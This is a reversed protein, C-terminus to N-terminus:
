RQHNECSDNTPIFFWMKLWERFIILTSRLGFYVLQFLFSFYEWIENMQLEINARVEKAFLLFVAACVENNMKNTRKYRFEIRPYNRKFSKRNKKKRWALSTEYSCRFLSFAVNCRERSDHSINNNFFFAVHNISFRLALLFSFFYTINADIQRSSENTILMDALIESQQCRNFNISHM